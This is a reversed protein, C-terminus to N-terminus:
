ARSNSYSENEVDWSLINEKIVCPVESIERKGFAYINCCFFFFSAHIITLLNISMIIASIQDVNSM